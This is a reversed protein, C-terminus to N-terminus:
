VKSPLLVCWSTHIEPLLTIRVESTWEKLETGLLPGLPESGDRRTFALLVDAILGRGRVVPVGLVFRKCEGLLDTLWAIGQKPPSCHTTGSDDVANTGLPPNSVQITGLSVVRPSATSIPGPGAHSRPADSSPHIMGYPPKPNPNTISKFLRNIQASSTTAEGAWRYGGNWASTVRHSLVATLFVNDAVTWHYAAWRDLTYSSGYTISNCRKDARDNAHADAACSLSQQYYPQYLQYFISGIGVVVAGFAIVFCAACLLLAPPFKREVRKSIKFKM